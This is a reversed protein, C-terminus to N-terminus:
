EYRLSQAPNTRASKIAQYSITSLAIILAILFGMLFSIIGPDIRYYYNNLWSSGFYYIVPWALITAIVVLIIIDKSIMLFIRGVSAGMAKRIGIEKTRAQVTYSTLGFLGLSAIFIALITFLISLRANQKEQQYKSQFDQDLFFYQLPDNSTFERWLNDIQKITGQNYSPALKISFYGWQFDEPKHRFVYPMIKMSLARFHFDKAVGIVPMYITTDNDRNIFRTGIPNELGFQSVATHNIVVAEKDTEFDRDFSRGEEITFGYTDFYDWDVWNTELLVSEETKGELAYGNTNNNRGPVATSSAANIVGPIKKVEEKFAETQNGLAGVRTVVLIREQDYGPDKHIMYNIQRYMVMTGSILVVSITFQLIVLVSRLRANSKSSQVGTKIVKVPSFSSLYFAPYSGAIVGIIFTFILLLPIVYWANFISIDLESATIQNIYPLCLSVIILAVILSLFTLILSEMLFQLILSSRSAGAVKKLGVEMARRAGQATSLNMFNISAIIIILLAISGFILLYKPDIAPKDQHDVDPNLHIDRLKQLYMTYRNGGSLFEEMSVGLYQELFSGVNRTIMDPFKANVGSPEAGEKLLVYTSFSNSLWQNDNARRNTMFSALVNTHFHSNSPIDEMVGTVRYLTSDTGVKLTRGVIDITGFIKNATSRSLVLVHPKNLVNRKDGALLPISFIEFFSSDVEVYYEETFSNEDVKLVTEGWPNMRMFNEIEPFENFMYPGVPSATSTTVVEQEGIKGDLLVRYIREKKENFNDYSLENRVFLAITLSTAIGISLGIVNLFFYTRQRRFVRVGHLLLNRIM